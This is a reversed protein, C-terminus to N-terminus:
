NGFPVPVLFATVLQLNGTKSEIPTPDSIGLDSLPLEEKYKM